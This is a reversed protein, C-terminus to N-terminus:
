DKINLRYNATFRQLKLMKAGQKEQDTKSRRQLITMKYRNIKERKAGKNTKGREKNKWITM